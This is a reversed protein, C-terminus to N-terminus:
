SNMGCLIGTILIIVMDLLKHKRNYDKRPDELDSEIYEALSKIKYEKM